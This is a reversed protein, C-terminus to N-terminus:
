DFVYFDDCGGVYMDDIFIQLVMCGGNVCQMMEVCCDFDDFLDIEIYEVGKEVLFCKVMQCYGCILIIYIEIKIM